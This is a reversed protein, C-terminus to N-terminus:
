NPKYQALREAPITWGDYQLLTGAEEQFFDDILQTAVDIKYILEFRSSKTPSITLWGKDFCWHFFNSLYL